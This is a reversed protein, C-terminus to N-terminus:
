KLGGRKFCMDLFVMKLFFFFFDFWWRKQPQLYEACQNRLQTKVSFSIPPGGTPAVTVGVHVDRGGTWGRGSDEEGEKKKEM